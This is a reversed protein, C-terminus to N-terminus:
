SRGEHPLRRALRFGQNRHAHVGIAHHASDKAGHLFRSHQRVAEARVDYSVPAGWQSLIVRALVDSGMRSPSPPPAFDATGSGLRPSSGPQTTTSTPSDHGKNSAAKLGGSIVTGLRTSRGVRQATPRQSTPKRTYMTAPVTPGLRRASRSATRARRRLSTKCPRRRPSGSDQQLGVDTSRLRQGYANNTTSEEYGTVAGRATTPSPM